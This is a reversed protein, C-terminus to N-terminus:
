MSEPASIGAIRLANALVIQCLRALYLRAETLQRDDSIVRCKTYFSHFSSAVDTMYKILRNPERAEAIDHIEEPFAALIKMLAVESPDRLLSFNVENPGISTAVGEEKAQRFISAIRAHAYQVYFVPNENSQLRALDLDFDLHSEPSRMLFFFRAADKGVEELLEEMTIFEGGRKSMKVAEGSRSLRVMQVILIELGESPYGLGMLGARLRGLYGHHDPGLLDILLEFGREFKNKHYALDPVIYTVSGQGDSKIIVRDKDDGFETSKFWLAGDKEYTLGKVRLLEVVQMYANSDRLSKESFWTDYELGYDLLVKRQRDVIREVAYKGLFDHLEAPSMKMLTEGQTLYLEKAMDFLYEGKYGGEPIEAAEGQVQRLRAELSSALMNVQNGADNIYFERSVEYGAMQMLSALCDGVAAARANVVNLPGTPNASVFEILVRKGGGYNTRGYSPGEAWIRAMAPELWGRDLFFNLFGPGAIDVQRIPSDDLELYKVIAGAASRGDSKIARGIAMAVGTAFDGQDPRSPTELKVTVDLDSPFEGKNKAKSIAADIRRVIDRKVESLVSSSVDM